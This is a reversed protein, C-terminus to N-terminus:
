NFSTTTFRAFNCKSQKFHYLIHNGTGANPLMGGVLVLSLQDNVCFCTASHHAISCDIPELEGKENQNCGLMILHMITDSRYKVQRVTLLPGSLSLLITTILTGTLIMLPLRGALFYFFHSDELLFGQYLTGVEIPHSCVLLCLFGSRCFFITLKPKHANM